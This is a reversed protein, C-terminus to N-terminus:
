YYKRLRLSRNKALDELDTHMEEPSYHDLKMNEKLAWEAKFPFDQDISTGRMADSKEALKNSSISENNTNENTLKRPAPMTWITKPVSPKSFTPSPKVLYEKINSQGTLVASTEAVQNQNPEIHSISTRSLDQVANEIETRDTLSYGIRVYRKIAHAIQISM